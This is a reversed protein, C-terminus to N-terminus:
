KCLNKKQQRPLLGLKPYVYLHMGQRILLCLAVITFGEAYDQILGGALCLLTLSAAIAWYRTSRHRAVQYIFALPLPNLVLAQLNTSTTPHESFLMATVIVGAFGQATMLLLDYVVLSKRHKIEILSVAITIGILILSCSLPTLPFEQVVVQQRGEILIHKRNVLPRQQGDPTTILAKDFDHMLDEPLFQRQRWSTHQDAKVGLCLDNGVAAWPHDATHEHIMQRYSAGDAEPHREGPYTIRGSICREVMDRARTTCNDYFYNYRYTRNEPRYNEELANLLRRKEADTLNIVQETVQCGQRVYEERFIDMPVAGLEYDTLGFLFRLVFFPKEFNFVGYNFSWDSGTRLDHLRLATHGYLGYIRQSPQCTLLSVEFSDEQAEQAQAQPASFLAAITLIAASTLTCIHNTFHKVDAFTCM